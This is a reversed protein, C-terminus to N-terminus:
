ITPYIVWGNLFKGHFCSSGHNPRWWGYLFISRTAWMEVRPELFASVPLDKTDVSWETYDSWHALWLLGCKLFWHGAMVTVRFCVVTFISRDWARGTAFRWGSCVSRDAEWRKGYHARQEAIQLPKPFPFSMANAIFVNLFPSVEFVSKLSSWTKQWTPLLVCTLSVM